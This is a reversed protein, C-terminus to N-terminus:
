CNLKKMIQKRTCGADLPPMKSHCFLQIFKTTHIMTNLALANLVESKKFRFLGFYIGLKKSYEHLDIIPSPYNARLGVFKVKNTYESVERNNIKHSQLNSESEVYTLLRESLVRLSDRSAEQQNMGQAVIIYEEDNDPPPAIYWEPIGNAYVINSYVFSVLLITRRLM